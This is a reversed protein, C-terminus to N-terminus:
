PVLARRWSSATELQPSDVNTARELQQLEQKLARGLKPSDVNSVRGWHKLRRKICGRQRHGKDTIYIFSKVCGVGEVPIRHRLAQRRSLAAPPSCLLSETLESNHTNDLSRDTIEYGQFRNPRLRISVCMLECEHRISIACIDARGNREKETEVM